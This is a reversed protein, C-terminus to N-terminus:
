VEFPLLNDLTPRDNYTDCLVCSILIKTGCSKEATAEIERQYKLVIKYSQLLYYTQFFFFSIFPYSSCSMTQVEFPLPPNPPPNETLM